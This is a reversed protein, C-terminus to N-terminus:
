PKPPNFCRLCVRVNEKYGFELIPRCNSAPACQSCVLDGCKRCHHRRNTSSFKVGCHMCEPLDDSAWVPREIEKKEEAPRAISTATTASSARKSAIMTAVEIESLEKALPNSVRRSLLSRYAQAVPGGYKRLMTHAGIESDQLLVMLEIDYKSVFDQFPKNGGTLVKRMEAPTFRDLEL